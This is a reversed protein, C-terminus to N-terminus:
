CPKLTDFKSNVWYVTLTSVDGVASSYVAINSQGAAALAQSSVLITSAYTNAAVGGSFGLIKSTQPYFPQLLTGIPESALAGAVLPAIVQQCLTQTPQLYSNFSM